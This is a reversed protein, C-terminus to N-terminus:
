RLNPISVDPNADAEYDIGDTEFGFLQFFERRYGELDSLEYVNETTLDSWLKAVEAQIEPRMEWDDVRILGREDVPTEGKGYLRESFLRYMQEICGEHIGQEKM